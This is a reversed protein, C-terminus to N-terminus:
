YSRDLPALDSEWDLGRAWKRVPQALDYALTYMVVYEPSSPMRTKRTFVIFDQDPANEMRGSHEMSWLLREEAADYIDVELALSTTGQSGGLLLHSIRPHVVLDADRRRAQQFAKAKGPWTDTDAYELSSFVGQGQWARFFVRGLERGARAKGQMDTKVEPSFILGAPVEQPAQKPLLYIPAVSREVYPDGYFIPPGLRLQLDPDIHRPPRCALLAGLLCGALFLVVTRM